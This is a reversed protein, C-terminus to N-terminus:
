LIRINRQPSYGTLMPIMARKYLLMSLRAHHIAAKYHGFHPGSSSTREKAKKWGMCFEEFTIHPVPKYGVPRQLSDLFQTTIATTGPPAIYTGALIAESWQGTGLTGLDRLLRGQQLQGHGETQHYKLENAKIISKEIEEKKTLEIQQGNPTSRIVRSTSLNILKKELYRVRRFLVRTNEQQTLNKVHTAAPINDELEKAQALRHRYEIQLEAAHQKCVQRNKIAVQLSKKIDQISLSGHQIGLKNRLSIIKRRNVKQLLADKHMLTWYTVRDCAKQYLPSWKVIGTKLKRCQWEAEYMAETIIKDLHEYQIINTPLFGTQAMEHLNDLQTYVDKDSLTKHL